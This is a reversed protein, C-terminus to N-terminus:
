KMGFWSSKRKEQKRESNLPNVPSHQFLGGTMLYILLKHIIM